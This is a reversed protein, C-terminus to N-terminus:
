VNGVKFPYLSGCSTRSRTTRTKYRRLWLMKISQSSVSRSWPRAYRLSLCFVLTLRRRQIALSQSASVRASWKRGQPDVLLRNVLRQWRRETNHASSTRTGQWVAWVAEQASFPGGCCVWSFRRLPTPLLDRRVLGHLLKSWSRRYVAHPVHPLPDSVLM